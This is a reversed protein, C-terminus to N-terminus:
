KLYGGRIVAFTSLNIIEEPKIKSRLSLYLKLGEFNGSISRTIKFQTVDVDSSTLVQASENERKFWIQGNAWYFDVFTISETKNITQFSTELSLEGLNSDPVTTPLYIRRANKTEQLFTNLVQDAAVVLNERIKALRYNKITSLSLESLVLIVVALLSAYLMAEILSFGKKTPLSYHTTLLKM